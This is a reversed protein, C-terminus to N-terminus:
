SRWSSGGVGPKEVKTSTVEGKQSRHVGPDRRASGDAAQLLKRKDVVALIQTPPLEGAWWWKDTTLEVPIVLPRERQDM